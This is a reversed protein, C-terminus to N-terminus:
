NEFFSGACSLYRTVDNLMSEIVQQYLETDQLQLWRIVDM